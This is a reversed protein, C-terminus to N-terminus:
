TADRDHPLTMGPEKAAASKKAAYGIAGALLLGGAALWSRNMNMWLQPSFDKSRDDFRGHAGRDGPLPTWLNNPRDQDVREDMQQSEYGSRALIWDALWPAVRNGYVAKLTPTGVMVERRREHAAFHIAEAVVEPQYIPPVPQPHGPLRTKNWGFQPTNVAPLHVMTVHVGSNDHQLEVRLSETFGEIAHKAACYASQLPIGRYSLASGVQVITGRNRPLMHRLVSLTGNVYGLYTVETVRHFEQATMEKVPSFVTTTANNVWIDIPGLEQEIRQAAEDLFPPEAVDGAVILARGGLKEVDSQAGRLGDLGRAILAVSAGEAAFRRAVARGVGASAGTVVVVEPPVRRERRQVMVGDGAMRVTNENSM